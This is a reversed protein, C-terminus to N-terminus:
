AVWMRGARRRLSSGGPLNMASPGEPEVMELARDVLSRNVQPVQLERFVSFLCARQLTEPLSRLQPLHIRGQPDIVDAQAVAWAEIERMEADSRAAKILAAVPDRKAIDELLPLAENRMRNRVAVAEANTADERWKLREVELWHRLEARRVSLLPRIIEMKLGDMSMEQSEEM